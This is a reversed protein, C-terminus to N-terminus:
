IDTLLIRNTCTSVEKKQKAPCALVGNLEMGTLDQLSFQREKTIWFKFNADIKQEPNSLYETIQDFRAGSLVQSKKTNFYKCLWDHSEWADVRRVPLTTTNSYNSTIIYFCNVHLLIFNFAQFSYPCITLLIQVKTPETYIGGPSLPLM